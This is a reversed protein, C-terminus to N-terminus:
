VKQPENHLTVEFVTTKEPVELLPEILARVRHRANSGNWAEWEERTRWTSIVLSHHSDQTDILTEGSLYGPSHMAFRRAEKLAQELQQEMGRVFYREILVRIV